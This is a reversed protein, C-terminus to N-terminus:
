LLGHRAPDRGSGEQPDKGGYERRRPQGPQIPYLLTLYKRDKMHVTAYILGLKHLAAVRGRLDAKTADLKAIICPGRVRLVPAHQGATLSL